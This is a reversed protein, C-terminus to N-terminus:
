QAKGWPFFFDDNDATKWFFDPGKGSHVAVKTAAVTCSKVNEASFGESLLYEKLNELFDGSMAFDDVILIKGSRYGLLEEPIHVRWKSTVIQCADGAIEASMRPDKPFTNGVYVPLWNELESVLLNAFTAGTLGPTFCVDAKFSRNIKRGLDNACAQLDAYELSKMQRELRVSKVGFYFTALVGLISIASLTATVIPM